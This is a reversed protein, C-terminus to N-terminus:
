MPCANDAMYDHVQIKGSIIGKKAEEVKARIEKTILKENYKDMAPEVGGEALGWASIGGKFTGGKADNFVKLAAKDVHKVMSTLVHGPQLYDQDSDVGIGFKGADATAQLVGTGTAGAAAYVVDAGQEMQSKALEGGKVPNSWASADTGAFNMIVKINPNAWKAGLAYGCEFRRILPIDMGGVFGLTSSKSEMAGIVGVLFSGEQEKFVISEVNPAPVVMDILGFKTAPYDTSAKKVADAMAFGVGLIPSFGKKALEHFFQDFQGQNTTEQNHVKIGTDKTFKKAAEYVNQNFSKDAIGATDYVVAPKFEDALAASSIAITSVALAGILTKM